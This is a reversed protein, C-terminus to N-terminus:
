RPPPPPVPPPAPIEPIGDWGTGAFRQQYAQALAELLTEPDLGTVDLRLRARFADGLRAALTRRAQPELSDRRELFSRILGYERESLGAADVRVAAETRTESPRLVLPAPAPMPRERIVITGAALDGIRQSKRTVIMSITGTVYYAPLFDVIRLLNRVLVPGVTVPQGDTRVVRIRQARKGPTRGKWLGEFLPYYGWLIVFLAILYIVVLATNVSGSGTNRSLASFVFSLGIVAGIQIASDIIAAIMRSGLGAVDVSLSVAEPTVIADWGSGPVQSV